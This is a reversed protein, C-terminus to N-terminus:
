FGCIRSVHRMKQQFRSNSKAESQSSLTDGACSMQRRHDKGAALRPSPQGGLRRTQGRRERGCRLLRCWRYIRCRQCKGYVLDSSPPPRPTCIRGHPAGGRKDGSEPMGSWGGVACRVSSFWGGGRSTKCGVLM